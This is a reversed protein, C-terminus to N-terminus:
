LTLSVKKVEDDIGLIDYQKGNLQELALELSIMFAPTQHGDPFEFIYDACRCDSAVLPYSSPDNVMSEIALSNVPPICECKENGGYVVENQEGDERISISCASAGNQSSNLYVLGNSPVNQWSRGGDFSAVLANSVLLMDSKSGNDDITSETLSISCQQQDFQFQFDPNVSYGIGVPTTMGPGSGNRCEDSTLLLNVSLLMVLPITIGSIFSAHKNM